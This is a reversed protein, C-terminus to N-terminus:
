HTETTTDKDLDDIVNDMHQFLKDFEIQREKRLEDLKENIMQEIFQTDKSSKNDYWDILKAGIFSMGVVLMLLTAIIKITTMTKDIKRDMADIKDTTSEKTPLQARLVEMEKTFDSIKNIVTTVIGVPLKDSGDNIM